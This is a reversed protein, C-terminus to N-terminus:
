YRQRNPYEWPRGKEHSSIWSCYTIGILIALIVWFAGFRYSFRVSRMKSFNGGIFLYRWGQQYLPSQMKKEFRGDTFYRIPAMLTAYLESEPQPIEMRIESKDRGDEKVPHLSPPVVPTREPDTAAMPFWESLPPLSHSSFGISLLSFSHFSHLIMLPQVCITSEYNIS